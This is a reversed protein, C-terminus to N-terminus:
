GVARTALFGALAGVGAMTALAWAARGPRADQSPRPEASELAMLGLCQMLHSNLEQRILADALHAPKAWVMSPEADAAVAAKNPVTVIGYANKKDWFRGGDQQIAVTTSAAGFGLGVLSGLLSPARDEGSKLALDLRGKSAQLTPALLIHKGAAANGPEPKMDVLLDGTEADRVLAVVGPESEVMMPQGYGRGAAGAPSVLAGAVSFFRGDGRALDGNSLTRWAGDPLAGRPVAGRSTGDGIADVASLDIRESSFASAARFRELRDHLAQANAATPTLM